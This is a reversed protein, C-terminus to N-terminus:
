THCHTHVSRHVCIMVCEYQTLEKPDGRMEGGRGWVYGGVQTQRCEGQAGGGCVCVCVQALSAPAIRDVARREATGMANRQSTLNLRAHVALYRCALACSMSSRHMLPAHSCSFMGMYTGVVVAAM